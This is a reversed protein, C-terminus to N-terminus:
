LALGCDADGSKALIKDVAPAFDVRKLGARHAGDIFRLGAETIPWQGRDKHTVLGRDELFQLNPLVNYQEIGLISAVEDFKPYIGRGQFEHLIQLMGWQLPTPRQIPELPRTPLVPQDGAADPIGPAERADQSLSGGSPPGRFGQVAACVVTVLGQVMADFEAVRGEPLSLRAEHLIADLSPLQQPVNKLKRAIPAASFQRGGTALAKRPKQSRGGM